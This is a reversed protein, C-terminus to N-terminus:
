YRKTSPVDVLKKIRERIFTGLGSLEVKCYFGCHGIKYSNQNYSRYEICMYATKLFFAIISFTCETRSKKSNENLLIKFITDYGCVFFDSKKFSIIKHISKYYNINLHM